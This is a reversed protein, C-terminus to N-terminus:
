IRMQVSHLDVMESFRAIAEKQPLGAMSQANTDFYIALRELKALQNSNADESARYPLNVKVSRTFRVLPARSSPLSGNGM